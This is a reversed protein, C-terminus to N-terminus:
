HTLSKLKQIYSTLCHARASIFESTQNSDAARYKEKLEMAAAWVVSHEVGGKRNLYVLNHVHRYTAFVWPVHPVPDGANVIRFTRSGLQRNYARQWPGNAVRPSGFTFVAEIEYGCGGLWYAIITAVAGGLSHGSLIVRAGPPLKVVIDSYVSSAAAKFGRHLRGPDSATKRIKADTLGDRWSATGPFHVAFRSPESKSILSDPVPVSNNRRLEQTGFSFKEVLVQTDTAACTVNPWIDNAYLAHITQACALATFPHFTM